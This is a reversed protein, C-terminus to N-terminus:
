WYGLNPFVFIGWCIGGILSLIALIGFFVVWGQISYVKGQMSDIKNELSKLEALTLRAYEAMVLPYEEESLLGWRLKMDDTVLIRWVTEQEKEVM